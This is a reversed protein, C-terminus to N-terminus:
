IFVIGQFNRMRLGLLERTIQGHLKYIDQFTLLNKVYKIIESHKYVLKKFIERADIKSLLLHRLM